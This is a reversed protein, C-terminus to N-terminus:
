LSISLDCTESEEKTSSLVNWTILFSSSLQADDSLSAESEISVKWGFWTPPETEESFICVSSEVSGSTTSQLPLCNNLNEITKFM